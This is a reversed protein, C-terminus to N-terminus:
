RGKSVTNRGTYPRRDYLSFSILRPFFRWVSWEFRSCACYTRARSSDLHAPRGPVSLKGAGNSPGVVGDNTPLLQFVTSSRLM